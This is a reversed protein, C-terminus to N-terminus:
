SKLHSRIEELKQKQIQDNRAIGAILLAPIATYLLGFGNQVLGYIMIGILFGVLVAAISRNRKIKKQEVFLDDDTWSSYDKKPSM